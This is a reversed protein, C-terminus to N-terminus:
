KQKSSNFSPFLLNHWSRSAIEKGICHSSSLIRGNNLELHRAPAQMATDPRPCFLLLLLVVLFLLTLLNFAQEPPDTHHTVSSCSASANISYLSKQKNLQLVCQGLNPQSRKLYYVTDSVTDSPETQSNGMWESLLLFLKLSTLVLTLTKRLFYDM